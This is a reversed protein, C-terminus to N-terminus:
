DRCSIAEAIESGAPCPVDCNNISVFNRGAAACSNMVAVAIVSGPTCNPCTEPILEGSACDILDQLNEMDCASAACSRRNFIWCRTQETGDDALSLPGPFCISEALDHSTGPDFWEEYDACIGNTTASAAPGPETAGTSGGTANPPSSDSATSASSIDDTGGGDACASLTILCTCVLLLPTTAM